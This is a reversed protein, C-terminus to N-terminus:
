KSSEARHKIEAFVRGHVERVVKRTWLRWYIAPGFRCEYRSLGEILMKGNPLPTLKFEGYLCRYYGTLHDPHTDFFPNFERMTPPTKLVDFGLKENPKWVTIREPMDGTSLECVKLAGIGAGETRTGTPHAMGARFLVNSPPPMNQLNLLHPWIQSPSADVEISSKVEDSWFEAKNQLQITALAPIAVLVSVSLHSRRFRGWALYWGIGAGVMSLIGGLPLVILLCIAGERLLALGLAFVALMSWGQVAAAHKFDFFERWNLVLSGLIGGFIPGAVFIFWGYGFNNNALPLAAISINVFTTVCVAAVLKKPDPPGPDDAFPM